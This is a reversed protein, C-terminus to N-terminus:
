NLPKRDNSSSQVIKLAEEYPEEMIPILKPSGESEARYFIKNNVQYVFGVSGDSYLTNDPKRFSIGVEARNTKFPYERLFPRIKENNNIKNLFKETVTVELRRAEEVTAHHYSIFDISIEEVDRPMRGGHGNCILGYQEEMERVFSEKIQNVYFEYDESKNIKGNLKYGYLITLTFFIVSVIKQM